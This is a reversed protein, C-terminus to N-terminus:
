RNSLQFINTTGIRNQQYLSYTIAAMIGFPTKYHVNDNDYHGQDSPFDASIVESCKEEVDLKGICNPSCDFAICIIFSGSPLYSVKPYFPNVVIRYKSSIKLM